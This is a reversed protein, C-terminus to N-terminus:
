EKKEGISEKRRRKREEVWRGRYCSLFSTLTASLIEASMCEGSQELFIGKAPNGDVGEEFIDHPSLPQLLNPRAQHQRTM